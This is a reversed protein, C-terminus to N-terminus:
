VHPSWPYAARRRIRELDSGLAFGVQATVENDGTNSVIGAGLALSESLLGSFSIAYGQEGNNMTVHGDGPMYSLNQPRLRDAQKQHSLRWYRGIKQRNL